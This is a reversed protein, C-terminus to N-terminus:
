EEVYEFYGEENMKWKIESGKFIDGWEWNERAKEYEYSSKGRFVPTYKGKEIFEYCGKSKVRFICDLHDNQWECIGKGEGEGHYAGKNKTDWYWIGDTNFLLPIYGNEKLRKELDLIRRNNDSIMDRSLHAWKYKVYESQMYGQTCNLIAKFYVNDKKRNIYIYKVLEEFEPHTNVLGSMFSSHYDIHYVHEFTKNEKVKFLYSDDLGLATKMVLNNRFGIYVDPIQSKNIKAKEFDNEAYDELEINFKQALKYFERFAQRGYIPKDGFMEASGVRVQLRYSGYYHSLITIEYGLKANRIDYAPWKTEMSIAGSKTREIKNFNSDYLEKLIGNIFDFNDQTPQFMTVPIHLYNVKGTGLWKDYKTLKDLNIM